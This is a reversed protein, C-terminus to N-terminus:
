ATAQTKEAGAGPTTSGLYVLHPRRLIDPDGLYDERNRDGLESASATDGNGGAPTSLTVLEESTDM